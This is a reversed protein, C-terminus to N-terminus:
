VLFTQYYQYTFSYPDFICYLYLSYVFIILSLFLAIQKIVKLAYRPIGALILISIVPLLILKFLM